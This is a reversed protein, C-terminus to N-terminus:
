SRFQERLTDRAQKQLSAVRGVSIGLLGATETQTYGAVDAALADRQGAPLKAVADLVELAEVTRQVDETRSCWRRDKAIADGAPHPLPEVIRDEKRRKIALRVAERYAVTRLWRRPRPHGPRRIAAEEFAYQVAQRIERAFPRVRSRRAMETVDIVIYARLERWAAELQEDTIPREVREGQSSGNGQQANSGM